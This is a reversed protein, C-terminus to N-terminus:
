RLFGVERKSSTAGKAVATRAACIDGVFIVLDSARTLATYILTLDLLHTRRVSVIVAKWQSGQSKHVTIAFGHELKAAVQESLEIDGSDTILLRGDFKGTLGNYLGNEYDNKTCLLKDNVSFKSGGIADGFQGALRKNIERVGGDHDKTPAIIQSAELTSFEQLAVFTDATTRSIEGNNCPISYVGEREANWVPLDPLRHKRISEGIRPIGTEDSQRQIKTLVSTAVVSTECLRHFVLGPGIPPLQFHDGALLVRCSRSVIKRLRSVTFIDLMSAEDVVLLTNELQSNSQEVLLKAITKAPLGTVESMRAAAKGSLAVQVVDLSGPIAEYIARLVTTKGVGAGGSLVALPASSCIKVGECQEETLRLGTASEFRLIANSVDQAVRAPQCIRERVFDELLCELNFLGATQLYQTKDIPRPIVVFQCSAEMVVKNWGCSPVPYKTLKAMLSEFRVLTHGEGVVSHTEHQVVAFLRRPDDRPFGNRLVIRDLKQFGVFPLIVYPNGEYHEIAKPDWSSIARTENEAFGQERFFVISEAVKRIGEFVFDFHPAEMGVTEFVLESPKATSCASFFTMEPYALCLKAAKAKGFNPVSKVFERAIEETSLM